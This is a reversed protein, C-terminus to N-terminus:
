KFFTTVQRKKYHINFIQTLLAEVWKVEKNRDQQNCSFDLILCNGTHERWDLKAAQM